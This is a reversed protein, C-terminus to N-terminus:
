KKKSEQDRNLRKDRKKNPLNLIRTIRGPKWFNKILDFYKYKLSELSNRRQDIYNFIDKNIIPISKSIPDYYKLFILLVEKMNYPIVTQTITDTDIYFNNLAAHNLIKNHVCLIHLLSINKHDELFNYPYEIILSLSRRSFITWLTNFDYNDPDKYYLVKKCHSCFFSKIWLMEKNSNELMVNYTESILNHIDTNKSFVSENFSKTKFIDVFSNKISSLGDSINGITYNHNISNQM